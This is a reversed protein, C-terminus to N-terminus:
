EGVECTVSYSEKQEDTQGSVAIIIDGDPEIEIPKSTDLGNATLTLDANAVSIMALAIVIITLSRM